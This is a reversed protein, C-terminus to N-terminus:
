FLYRDLDVEYVKILSLCPDLHVSCVALLLRSCLDFDDACLGSGHNLNVACLLYAMPLHCLIRSPVRERFVRFHINNKVTLCVLLLIWTGQM